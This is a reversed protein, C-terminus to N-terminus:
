CRDQAAAEIVSFVSSLQKLFATKWKFLMYSYSIYISIYLFCFAVSRFFFTDDTMVTM